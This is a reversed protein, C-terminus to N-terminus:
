KVLYDTSEGRARDYAKDAFVSLCACVSRQSEQHHRDEVDIARDARRLRLPLRGFEEVRRSFKINRGSSM